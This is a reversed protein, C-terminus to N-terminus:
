VSQQWSTIASQLGKCKMSEKTLTADNTWIVDWDPYTQCARPRKSYIACNNTSTLFCNTRFNPSAIVTYGNIVSVFNAKFQNISLNLFKAMSSIDERTVYVYGSSKCCAGTGECKFKELILNRNSVISKM